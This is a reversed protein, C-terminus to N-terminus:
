RHARPTRAARVWNCMWDTVGVYFLARIGRELLAAVYTQTPFHHADYEFFDDHVSMACM